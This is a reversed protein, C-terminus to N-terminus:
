MLDPTCQIRRNDLGMVAGLTDVLKTKGLGPVGVILVHGGALLAVLTQEITEEQGFIVRGIHDRARLIQGALAEIEAVPNGGSGGTPTRIPDVATDSASM